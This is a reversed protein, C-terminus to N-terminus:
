LGHEHFYSQAEHDKLFDQVINAGATLQTGLDSICHQPVGYEFCHLQLCRLFKKTSLDHCVKLNVARSWMCTICLIWVKSKSANKKVYFPGMLDIYINAFPINVSEIRRERYSSQNLKITRERFRKCLVCPKVVKKM